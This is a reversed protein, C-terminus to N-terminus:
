SAKALHLKTAVGKGQEEFRGTARLKKLFKGKGCIEDAVQPHNHRLAAAAIGLGIWGNEGKDAIVKEMAAVIREVDAQIPVNDRPPSKKEATELVVFGDCADRLRANSNGEGFGYVRMHSAKLRIALPTFDMDSSVLCIAGVACSRLIDMAHITMAIDASNEDNGGSVQMETELSHTKALDLWRSLGGESFDGFLRFIVPKGLKEVEASIRPYHNAAINEADVLVALPMNQM